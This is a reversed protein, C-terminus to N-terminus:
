LAHSSCPIGVLSLSPLSIVLLMVLFSFFCHSCCFFNCSSYKPLISSYGPIRTKRQQQEKKKKRESVASLVIPMYDIYSYALNTQTTDMENKLPYM